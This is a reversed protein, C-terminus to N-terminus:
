IESEGAPDLGVAVKWDAPIVLSLRCAELERGVVYLYSGPGGFQLSGAEFKAPVTYDLTLEGAAAVVGKWSNDAPHEFAVAAGAADRGHLEEVRKGHFKLTYDGPSWNPMQLEIPGPGAEFRMTVKIRTKDGIPEVEYRVEARAPAAARFCGAFVLRVISSVSVGRSSM